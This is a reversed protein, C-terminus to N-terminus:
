CKEIRIKHEQLITLAEPSIKDKLHLMMEEYAEIQANKYISYADNSDIYNTKFSIGAKKIASYFNRTLFNM